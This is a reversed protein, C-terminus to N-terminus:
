ILYRRNNVQSDSDHDRLQQQKPDPHAIQQLYDLLANMQTMVTGDLMQVLYQLDSRQPGPLPFGGFLLVVYEAFLKKKM